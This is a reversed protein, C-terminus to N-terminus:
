RAIPVLAVRRVAVGQAAPQGSHSWPRARLEVDVVGDAPAPVPIRYEAFAAGIRVRRADAGDVAIEVDTGGDPSPTANRM